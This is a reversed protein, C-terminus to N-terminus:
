FTCPLHQSSMWFSVWCRLKCGVPRRGPPCVDISSRNCHRLREASDAQQCFPSLFALSPQLRVAPTMSDFAAWGWILFERKIQTTQQQATILLITDGGRKFSSRMSMSIYVRVWVTNTGQTAFATFYFPSYRTSFVQYQCQSNTQCSQPESLFAIFDHCRIGCRVFGRRKSLSSAWKPISNILLTNGRILM